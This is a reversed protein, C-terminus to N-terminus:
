WACACCAERHDPHRLHGRDWILMSVVLLDQAGVCGADGVLDFGTVYHQEMVRLGSPHDLRQAVQTCMHDPATVDAFVFGILDGLPRPGEQAGIDLMGLRDHDRARGVRWGEGIWILDEDHRGRDVRECALIYLDIWVCHGIDQGPDPDAITDVRAILDGEGSAVPSSADYASMVVQDNSTTQERCTSVIDQLDAAPVLSLSM